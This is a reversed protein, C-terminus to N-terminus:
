IVPQITTSTTMQTLSSMLQGSSQSLINVIPYGPSGVSESTTCLAWLPSRQWLLFWKSIRLVCKNTHTYVYHHIDKAVVHMNVSLFKHKVRQFIYIEYLDLWFLVFGSNKYVLSNPNFWNQSAYNFKMGCFFFFFLATFKGTCLLALDRVTFFPWGVEQSEDTWFNKHISQCFCKVTRIRIIRARGSWMCKRGGGGGLTQTQTYLFTHKCICLFIWYSAWDHLPWHHSDPYSNWPRLGLTKEWPQRYM